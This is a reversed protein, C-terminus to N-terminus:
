NVVEDAWSQLTPALSPWHLFRSESPVTLREIWENDPLPSEVLRANPLVQALNESTRRTHTHDSDGSRLVLAPIELGRVASESLGPVPGEGCPAFALMWQEFTAIFQAPDQELFRQRNSPNRDLVEQWDTLEVVAEMGGNWAATISAGYYYVGVAMPGYIGGIMWWVALAAAIEPHRTAALLSVRSGGSGGSIVAPGMDLQELLGALVDAQMSSETVGAFCVDSEGTNPRDWILVRNGREALAQALERVGPYDKSFRGGPTIVWPGGDGIVEYAVTLGNVRVTAM